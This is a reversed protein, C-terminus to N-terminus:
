KNLLLARIANNDMSRIQNSLCTGIFFWIIFNYSSFSSLNEIFLIITHIFLMYGVGIVYFNKSRFFALYIAIFLILLNIFVAILGGKLLIALLGVEVTLRTDSDGEATRFYESYYTGSAGKGTILQNNELLDKFVEFYLFTRTDTSFETDSIEPLYKQFVSQKSIISSQLLFLPVVLILFSIKLIWKFNYKRYFSIAFLALFLLPVRMMMTRSSYLIAAYIILFVGILILYKTKKKQFPFITILFIVPFLIILLLQNQTSQIYGSTLAFSVISIVIGIKLVILLYRNITGINSAKASFSISFPVLLALITYINGFLTASSGEGSLLSRLINTINWAFLILLLNFAFKPINNKINSYYKLFFVFALIFSTWIFLTITIKPLSIGDLHFVVMIVEYILLLYLALSLSNRINLKM